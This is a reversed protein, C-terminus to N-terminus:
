AVAAFWRAIGAPVWNAVTTLRMHGDARLAVVTGLMSLWLFLFNALEDTWFLPSNFVYRSLVGAFLILTEAVVIVAGVSECVLGIGRDLLFAAHRLGSRDTAELGHATSIGMAM